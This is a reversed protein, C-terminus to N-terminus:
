SGHPAFRAGRPTSCCRGALQWSWWRYFGRRRAPLAQGPVELVCASPSHSEVAPLKRPGCRRHSRARRSEEGTASAAEARGGRRPRGQWCLKLAIVAWRLKLIRYEVTHIRFVIGSDTTERRPQTCTADIRAVHFRRATRDKIQAFARRNIRCERLIRPKRNELAASICLRRLSLKVAADYAENGRVTVKPM